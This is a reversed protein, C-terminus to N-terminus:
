GVKLLKDPEVSQCLADIIGQSYNYEIQAQTIKFVESADKTPQLLEAANDVFPISLGTAIDIVEYELSLLGVTGSIGGLVGKIDKQKVTYIAGGVLTDIGILQGAFAIPSLSKNTENGAYIM